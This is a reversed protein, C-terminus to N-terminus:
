GQTASSSACTTWAAWNRPMAADSASLARSEPDLLWLTLLAPEYAARALTYHSSLALPFRKLDGDIVAYWTLLHDLAGVVAASATNFGSAANGAAEDRRLLSSADTPLRHQAEFIEDLEVARALTDHLRQVVTPNFPERTPLGGGVTAVNTRGNM